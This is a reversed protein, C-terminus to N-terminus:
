KRMNDCMKAALTCFPRLFLLINRVVLSQALGRKRLVFTVFPSLKDGLEFSDM